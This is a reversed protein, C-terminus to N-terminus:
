LELLARVFTSGDFPQLDDLKEGLGVFKVKTPSTSEIAVVIGGKATGDLKTLIIGSPSLAEGFTEVQKLANQGTTADLVLLIEDPPSGTERGVVRVIKVLEEMLNRKTHLRGATDLIVTDAGRAEAAKVTDFAVAAPDAGFNHSIVDVDLREGWTNLQEIAAARFTDAAGLIPRRGETKLMHALKAASTTKGVGNVGILLIVAPKGGLHLDRESPECKLREELLKGLAEILADRDAAANRRRWERLEDLLEMATRAGMDTQVLLAELEEFVEEDGGSLDVIAGLGEVLRRRTKELGAKMRSWLGGGTREENSNM